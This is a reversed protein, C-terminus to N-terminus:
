AMEIQNKHSLLTESAMSGAIVPTDETIVCSKLVSLGALVVVSKMLVKM